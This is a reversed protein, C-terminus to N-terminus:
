LTFHNLIKLLVNVTSYGNIEKIEGSFGKLGSNVKLKEHLTCARSMNKFREITVLLTGM